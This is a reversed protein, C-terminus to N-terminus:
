LGPRAPHFWPEPEERGAGPLAAWCPICISGWLLPDPHFEELLRFRNCKRCRKM